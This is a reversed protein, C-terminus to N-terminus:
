SLGKPAPPPVAKDQVQLVTAGGFLSRSIAGLFVGFFTEVAGLSIKLQDPGLTDIQSFFLFFLSLLALVLIVPFSVVLVFYLTSVRESEDRAISNDLVSTFAAIAIAALIPSAMLLTQIADVGRLQAFVGLSLAVGFVLVHGFIVVIAVVTSATAKKVM